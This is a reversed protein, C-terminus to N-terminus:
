SGKHTRDFTRPCSTLIGFTKRSRKKLIIAIDQILIHIVFGGFITTKAILFGGFIKSSHFPKIFLGSM